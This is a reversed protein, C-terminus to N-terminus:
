MLNLIFKFKYVKTWGRLTVLFANNFAYNYFEFLQNTDKACPLLLNNSCTNATPIFSNKVETFVLSRHLKFGLVPEEDTGTAFQLM